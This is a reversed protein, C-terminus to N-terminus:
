SPYAQDQRHVRLVILLRRSFAPRLIVRWDGVRLRWRDEVGKLKRVDGQPFNLELQDLARAIRSQDRAPIKRLDRAAAREILLRWRGASDTM